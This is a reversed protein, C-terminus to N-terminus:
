ALGRLWRRRVFGVSVASHGGEHCCEVLGVAHGGKLEHCAHASQEGLVPLHLLHFNAMGACEVGKSGTYEHHAGSLSRLANLLQLGADLFVIGRQFESGRGGTEVQLVRDVSGVGGFVDGFGFHAAYEAGELAFDHM